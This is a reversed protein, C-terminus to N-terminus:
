LVDGFGVNKTKILQDSRQHTAYSRFLILDSDKIPTPMDSVGQEEDYFPM